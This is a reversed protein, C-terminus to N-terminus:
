VSTCNPKKSGTSGYMSLLYDYKGSEDKGFSGFYKEDGTTVDLFAFKHTREDVGDGIANNDSQSNAYAYNFQNLASFPVAGVILSVALLCCVIGRWAKVGKKM